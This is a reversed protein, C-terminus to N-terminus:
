WLPVLLTCPIRRLILGTGSEYKVQIEFSKNSNEL